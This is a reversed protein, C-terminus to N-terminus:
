KKRSQRLRSKKDKKAKGRGESRDPLSALVSLGLYKSVDEETTVADNLIIKVAISGAVLLFGVLAGIIANKANSPSSKETPLM